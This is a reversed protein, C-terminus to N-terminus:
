LQKELIAIDIDIRQIKKIFKEKEDELNELEICKEIINKNNTKLFGKSFAIPVSFKKINESEFKVMISKNNQEIIKGVGFKNHEVTEGIVSIEELVGIVNEIELLGKKANNKEMHLSDLNNRIEMKREQKTSKTTKKIVIDGYLDYTDACYIIDYVLVNLSKDEYCVENLYSKHLKLFDTSEKLFEKIEDCMKYYSSLKFDEGTRIGDGFEICDAMKKSESYKYIYNKTPNIMNLYFIVDRTSQAYKWSGNYYRNILEESNKKFQNISEQREEILFNNAFDLGKFMARVTEPEFEAMKILGSLPQVIRNDVLNYMEKTAKKLMEYFNEADIDWNDKFVKLARWKYLEDNESNYICDMKEIYNDLVKKLNEKNM